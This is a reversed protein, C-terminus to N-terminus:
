DDTLLAVLLIGPGGHVGVSVGLQSVYVNDKPLTIDCIKLLENVSSPVNSHVISLEKYPSNKKIFDALRGIGKHYTRVAGALGVEGHRFTLMPKINLISTINGLTKNVRGGAIAYKLTDFIGLMKIRSITQRAEEAVEKLNAGAKALRAAAIVVLGLGMTNLRSDIVEIPVTDCSKSAELAANYTGSLRSSIHISVIGETETNLRNYFRFFDAQTPQSTTPMISAAEMKRYLEDPKIDLGERYSKGEWIIYIPIVEIDLERIIDAPLDSTSDTVVKILVM